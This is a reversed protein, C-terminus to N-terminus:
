TVKKSVSLRLKRRSNFARLESLAPGLDHGVLEEDDERMWSHQLAQAATIREAPNTNLMQLILHQLLCVVMLRQLPVPTCRHYSMCGSHDRLFTNM